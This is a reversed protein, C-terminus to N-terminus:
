ATGASRLHIDGFADLQRLELRGEKALELAALFTAAVASRYVLRDRIDGPLFAALTEWLPMQGLRASLRRIADDMSYLETAAIRLFPTEEKRKQDAYARLLDYLSADWLTRDETDLAVAGGRSFVDVGLRPRALLLRGKEQMAELRRLQFALNEAMEAATLSDEQPPDPLLLRSKLYALWAAMVLYDAALELEERLAARIFALYQEVLDLIKIRTLDIKNDRALALLLDIPGEFGDLDVILQPRAPADEFGIDSDFPGASPSLLAAGESDIAM